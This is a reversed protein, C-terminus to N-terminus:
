TAIFIFTSIHMKYLYPKPKVRCSKKEEFIQRADAWLVPHHNKRRMLIFIHDTLTFQEKRSTARTIDTIMFLLTMALTISVSKCFLPSLHSMAPLSTLLAPVAPFSMVDWIGMFTHVSVCAMWHDNMAHNSSRWMGNVCLDADCYATYKNATLLM